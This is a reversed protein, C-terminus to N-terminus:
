LARACSDAIASATSMFKSHYRDEAIINYHAKCNIFLLKITGASGVILIVELVQYSGDEYSRNRLACSHLSRRIGYCETSVAHVGHLEPEYKKTTGDPGPTRGGIMFSVVILFDRAVAEEGVVVGEAEIGAVGDEEAARISENM